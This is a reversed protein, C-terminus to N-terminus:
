VECCCLSCWCLHLPSTPSRNCFAPATGVTAAPQAPSSAISNPHHRPMPTRLRPKSYLSSESAFCPPVWSVHQKQSNKNQSIILKQVITEFSCIYKTKLFMVAKGKQQPSTGSATVMNLKATLNSQNWCSCKHDKAIHGRSIIEEGACRRQM